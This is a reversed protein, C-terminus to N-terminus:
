QIVGKGALRFFLRGNCHSGTIANAVASLSSYVADEFQFGVPLVVVRLTKGKYARTLVMGPRLVLEGLRTALAASARELGSRTVKTPRPLSLRLDADNVLEEARRRARESLDGEALAQFRWAIRKVLWVRNNTTPTQEGFLEAFKARLERISRGRLQAVEHDVNMSLQGGNQIEYGNVARSGSLVTEESLELCYSLSFLPNRYPLVGM